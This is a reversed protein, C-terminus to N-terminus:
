RMDFRVGLYAIRDQTRYGSALEYEKDFLNVARGELLINRSLRYRGSMNVVGYGAMELTNFASDNRRSAAVLETRLDWKPAIYDIHATLTRRARRPLLRNTDRDKPEQFLAEMGFRWPGSAYEYGVELGTIRAHELNVNQGPQPGFFGDPDHFAILDKIQTHFLTAKLEQRKDLGHRVGLEISRSREPDLDPNGGFGFLDTSDPARYATGIDASLRTNDNLHYGWGLSWVGTDGFFEHHIFRAAVTFDHDGFHLSDKLLLAHSDVIKDFGTGFSLSETNERTLTAVLTLIQDGSLQIDNQWDVVKARTRAFDASQNQEIEDEMHSLKLISNWNETPSFRINLGTVANRFDQDVPNLFFDLYETEGDAQWHSLQLSAVGIHAGVTFNLSTNRYGRELESEIRPPLGDTDLHAADASFHIDEGGYRIGVSGSRTEDGGAELAASSQLGREVKARRTIINIVGGIADSGYLTSAPGKVIEIREVLAPDINQVAANGITGPNLPVGDLLVLTHNSEAGRMFVSTQQGPGGNRGIEVGAHQRLLDAVDQAPSREITNRDIVVTGPSTGALPEAVRGATIVITNPKEEAQLATSLLMAALLAPLPKHM